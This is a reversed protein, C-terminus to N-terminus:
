SYQDWGCNGCEMWLNKLLEGPTPNHYELPTGTSFVGEGDVLDGCEPCPMQEYKARYSDDTVNRKTKV